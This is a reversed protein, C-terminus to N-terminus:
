ARYVADVMAYTTDVPILVSPSSISTANKVATDIFSIDGDVVAMDLKCKAVGAHLLWLVLIDRSVILM